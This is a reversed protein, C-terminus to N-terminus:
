DYVNRMNKDQPNLKIAAKIDEFALDYDRRKQHAISRQYLAKIAVSSLDIAKTCYEIADIHKGSANLVM